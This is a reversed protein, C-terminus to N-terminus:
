YEFSVGFRVERPRTFLERNFGNFAWQHQRNQLNAIRYLEVYPAGGSAVIESSLGANNLFGDDDASGTRQFVNVVNEADILNQIYFYFNADIPGLSISKDIRLDLQSVWPTTSAGIDELAERNRPDTNNLIGGDEPGQQGLGGTSRTYAHGSNFTFLVNFGLRQLIPGGEESGFRYDFAISGRHRQNFDLPSVVKPIPDQTNVAGLSSNPFSGTGQADSFTYSIQTSIRQTRRMTFSLELGKTTAFDQNQFITFAGATAGAATNIQTIQLQGKVDRFFITADFAMLDSFSKNFGAEYQVTVVPDLEIAVAPNVIFNGAGFSLAQIGRGSFVNNFQPAQVFRGFQVHFVTEDTAPIALGFRPSIEIKTGTDKLSEQPVDFNAVDFAPDQLNKPVAQDFDFFDVRAGANIVLDGAEFKDQVYFAGFKPNKTGDFLKSDNDIENGFVDYGFANINGTRRYTFVAEEFLPDAPGNRIARALDPNNILLNLQTERGLNTIRRLTWREFNGGFKIEHSGAQTTFKYDLSIYKQKEKQFDVMRAGPRTFPFKFVDFEEPAIARGRYNSAFEPGLVEAVALSDGYLLYNDGFNRDFKKQRRDFVGVSLVQNTKDSILHTLKGTFLNTSQEFRGWRAKNLLTLLPRDGIQTDGPDSPVQQEQFTSAVTFRFLIPNFAFDLSGNLTKRNSFDDINGDPTSLAPIIQGKRGGRIGSDVLFIEGNEDVEINDNRNVLDPDEAVLDRALQQLDLGSWEHVRRRDDFHERELAVFAKIRDKVIPGSLTLVYDQYGYSFTDLVQEGAGQGPWEDSEIQLRAHFDDGGSRLTQSIIGSNAGGFEANFGGAQIQFEQLAEPIITVVNQGSMINRTNSGELRFGTEDARGGRINIAGDQFVVGAQLAFAATLGRIALKEISELTQIRVANTASQNVLPRKSVIVIEGVAIDEAPMEFDLKTTLDISVRVNSITVDRYGIYSARLTYLGAPVQLILFEGNVDTAAGRTTGKIIVNAAPLGEGTERDFVKGRIKGSTQALLLGPGLLLFLIASLFLIKQSM